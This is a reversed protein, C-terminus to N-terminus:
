RRGPHGHLCLLERHDGVDVTHHQAYGQGAWVDAICRWVLHIICGCVLCTQPACTLLVGRGPAQCVELVGTLHQVNWPGHRLAALAREAPDERPQEVLRAAPQALCFKPSHTIDVRSRHSWHRAFCAVISGCLMVVISPLMRVQACIHLNHGHDVNGPLGPLRGFLIGHEPDAACILIDADGHV